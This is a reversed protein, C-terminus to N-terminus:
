KWKRLFKIESKPCSPHTHQLVSLFDAKTVPPLDQQSMTLWNASKTARALPAYVAQKCLNTIDSSSFGDMKKAIDILDKSKLSSKIGKLNLGIIKKRDAQSPVDV